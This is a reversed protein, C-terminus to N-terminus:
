PQALCPLLRLGSTVAPAARGATERRRPVQRRVHARVRLRGPPIVSRNIRLSLVRVLRQGEATWRVDFRGIADGADATVAVRRGIVGAPLALEFRDQDDRPNLVVATLRLGPRLIPLADTLAMPVPLFLLGGQLGGAFPRAQVRAAVDFRNREADDTVPGLTTAAGALRLRVEAEMRRAYGNNPLSGHLSRERTALHGSVSSRVDMPCCATPVSRQRRHHSQSYPHSTSTSPLRRLRSGSPAVVLALSDQLTLPLQGLPTFRDTPDFFLLDGDRRLWRRCRRAALRRSHRHHRSQVATSVAVGRARLRIVAYVSVLFAPHEADGLLARMLNAKDKCDGYNKELVEAAAHPKYGGGRGLGTQISIYQVKQVYAGIARCRELDTGASMTLERARASLAPSTQAQPDQLMALWRGVSEWSDFAADSRPTGFYTVALRPIM